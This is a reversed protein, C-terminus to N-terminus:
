IDADTDQAQNINVQAQLVHQSLDKQDTENGLRVEAQLIAGTDLDVTHEPKYIMDTAGAKTLGIKADPDNPNVWEENSM